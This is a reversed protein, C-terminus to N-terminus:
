TFVFGGYGIQYVLYQIAPTFIRPHREFLVGRCLKKIVDIFHGLGDYNRGNKVIIQGEFPGSCFKRITLM